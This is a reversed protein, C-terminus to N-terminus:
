RKMDAMAQAYKERDTAARDRDSMARTEAKTEAETREHFMACEDAGFDNKLPPILLDLMVKGPHEKENCLEYNYLNHLLMVVCGGNMPDIPQHICRDCYEEEYIMGSTGNPFYAM